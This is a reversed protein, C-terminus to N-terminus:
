SIYDEIRQLLEDYDKVPIGVQLQGRDYSPLTSLYVDFIKQPKQEDQFYVALKGEYEKLFYQPQKLTDVYSETPSSVPPITAPVSLTIIFTTIISVAALAACTVLLNVRM